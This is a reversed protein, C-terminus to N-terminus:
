LKANCLASRLFVPPPAYLLACARETLAAEKEKVGGERESLSAQQEKLAEKTSM